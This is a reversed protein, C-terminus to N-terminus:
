FQANLNFYYNVIALTGAFALVLAAIWWYTDMISMPLQKIFLGKKFSWQLGAPIAIADQPTYLPEHPKFSIGAGEKYFSGVSAIVVPQKLHISSALDQVALQTTSTATDMDLHDITAVWAMFSADTVDAGPTFSVKEYPAAINEGSPDVGASVRELHLTGIGALQLKKHILLFPYIYDLMRSNNELSRIYLDRWLMEALFKM